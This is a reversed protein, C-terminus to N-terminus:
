HSAFESAEGPDTDIIALMALPNLSGQGSLTVAAVALSGLALIPFLLFRYALQFRGLYSGALALIASGVVCALLDGRLVVDGVALRAIVPVLCLPAWYATELLALRSWKRFFARINAVQDIVHQLGICIAQQAPM